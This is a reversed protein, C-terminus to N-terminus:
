RAPWFKRAPRLSTTLAGAVATIGLALHPIWVVQAFGFLIPSTALVIGALGDMWLHTPMSMSRGIGLEYDTFLSYGIVFVGTFVPVWTEPGDFAFDLLWPSAILLAGFVYDFVGHTRTTLFRM